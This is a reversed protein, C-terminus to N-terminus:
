DLARTQVLSARKGDLHILALTTHSIYMWNRAAAALKFTVAEKLNSLALPSAHGRAKDNFQGACHSLSACM